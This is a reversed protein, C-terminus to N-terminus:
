QKTATNPEMLRQLLTIAQRAIEDPQLSGCLTNIRHAETQALHRFGDQVKNFFEISRNDFADILAAQPDANAEIDAFLQTQSARQTQLAPPLDILLTLDPLIHKLPDILAQYLKPSAGTAYVQYAFSSDLYRDALVWYGQELAPKIREAVLQYRAAFFLLLEADPTPATDSANKVWSRVAEGLSTSGPERVVIVPQSHQELYSKLATILTSKGSGDIGEISIFRSKM